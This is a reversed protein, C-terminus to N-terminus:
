CKQGSTRIAYQRRLPQSSAKKGLPILPNNSQVLFQEPTWKSWVPVCLEVKHAAINTNTGSDVAEQILDKEPIYLIPPKCRGANRECEQPKLGEPAVKVHSM